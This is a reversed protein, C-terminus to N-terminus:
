NNWPKIPFCGFTDLMAQEFQKVRTSYDNSALTDPASRSRFQQGSNKYVRRILAESGCWFATNEWAWILYKPNVQAIDLPSSTSFKGWGLNDTDDRQDVDTM